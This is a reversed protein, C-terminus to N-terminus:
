VAARRRLKAAHEVDEVAESLDAYQSCGIYHRPCYYDKAGCSGGPGSGNGREGRAVAYCDACYARGQECLLVHLRLEERAERLADDQDDHM